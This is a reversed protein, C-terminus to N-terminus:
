FVQLLPFKKKISKEFYHAFDEEPIAILMKFANENIEDM